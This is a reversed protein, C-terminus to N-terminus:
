YQKIIYFLTWFIGFSISVLHSLIIFGLVPSCPFCQFCFTWFWGFDVTAHARPSRQGVMLSVWWITLICFILFLLQYQFSVLLACCYLLLPFHESVPIQICINVCQWKLWFGILTKCCMKWSLIVKTVQVLCVSIWVDILRRTKMVWAYNKPCARGEIAMKHQKTYPCLSKIACPACSQM